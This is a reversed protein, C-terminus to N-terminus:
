IKEKIKPFLAFSLGFVIHAAWDWFMPVEQNWFDVGHLTKMLFPILVYPGSMAIVGLIMGAILSEKTTEISFRTAAFGFLVGWLLSPGLQHLILGALIAGIHVGELAAQGFVMSGIVQVPYLPNKGLFVAFVLMVVVAMILGAVQGTIIASILTKKSAVTGNHIKHVSSATSSQM